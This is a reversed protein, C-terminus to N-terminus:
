IEVTASSFYGGVLKQYIIVRKQPDKKGEKPVIFLHEGSRSDYGSPSIDLVSQGEFSLNFRPPTSSLYIFSSWFVFCAWMPFDIVSFLM